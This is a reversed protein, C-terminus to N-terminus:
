IKAARRKNHAARAGHPFAFGAFDLGTGDGLSALGVGLTLLAAVAVLAPQYRESGMGFMVAVTILPSLAKIVQVTAVTLRAAALNSCALSGAFLAGLAPVARLYVPWGLSPIALHGSAALLQTFLTNACMHLLVLTVPHPFAGLYLAKNFLIVTVSAANWWLMAAYPLPPLPAPAIAPAPAPQAGGAHAGM